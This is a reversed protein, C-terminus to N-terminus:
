APLTCYSEVMSAVQKEYKPPTRLQTPYILLPKGNSTLNNMLHRLNDAGMMM